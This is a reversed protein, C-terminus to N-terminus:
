YTGLFKILTVRALDDPHLEVNRTISMSRGPSSSLHNQIHM